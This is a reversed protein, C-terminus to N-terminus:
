FRIFDEIFVSLLALPKNIIILFNYIGDCSTQPIDFRELLRLMQSKIEYARRMAKYNVFHQMCWTRANDANKELATFVNLYTILDGEHVEFKRREIQAKISNEGYRPKIFINDVQLMALISSIEDTCGFEGAIMM